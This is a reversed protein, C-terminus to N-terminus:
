IAQSEAALLADYFNSREQFDRHRIVTGFGRAVVMEAVNIGEPQSSSTMTPVVDDVESKLPSQLFISGFDKIRSDAMGSSPPPPAPGDTMSVKRAYEM